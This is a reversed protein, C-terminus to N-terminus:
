FGTRVTAKYNNSKIWAIIIPAITALLPTTASVIEVMGGKASSDPSLEGIQIKGTHSLLNSLLREKFSNVTGFEEQIEITATPDIEVV